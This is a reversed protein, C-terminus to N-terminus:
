YPENQRIKSNMHNVMHSGVSDAKRSTLHGNYGNQLNIGVEASAKRYQRKWRFSKRCSITESPEWEHPTLGQTM